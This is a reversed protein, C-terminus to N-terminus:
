DSEENCKFTDDLIHRVLGVHGEATATQIYNHFSSIENVDLSKFIRNSMNRWSLRLLNLKWLVKVIRYQYILLPQFDQM